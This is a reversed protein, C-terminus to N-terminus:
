IAATGDPRIAVIMGDSYIEIYAYQESRALPRASQYMAPIQDNPFYHAIIDGTFSFAHDVHGDGLYCHGFLGVLDGSGYAEYVEQIWDAIEKRAAPNTTVDLQQLAELVELPRVFRRRAALKPDIVNAQVTTTPASLNINRQAGLRKRRALFGGSDAM